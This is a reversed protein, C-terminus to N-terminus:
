LGTGIGQAWVWPCIRGTADVLGRGPTEVIIRHLHQQM